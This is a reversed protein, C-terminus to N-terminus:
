QIMSHIVHSMKKKKLCNLLNSDEVTLTTVTKKKETKKEM